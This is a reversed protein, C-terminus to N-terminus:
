PMRDVPMEGPVSGTVANPVVLKNAGFAWDDPM